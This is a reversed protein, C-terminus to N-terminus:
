GGIVATAIDLGYGEGAVPYLILNSMSGSIREANIEVWEIFQERSTTCRERSERQRREHYNDEAATM